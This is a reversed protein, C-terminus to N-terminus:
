LILVTWLSRDYHSHIAQLISTQELRHSHGSDPLSWQPLSLRGGSWVLAHFHNLSQTILHFPLHIFAILLSIASSLVYDARWLYRYHIRRLSIFM